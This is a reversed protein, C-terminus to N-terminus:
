DKYGDSISYECHNNMLYREVEDPGDTCTVAKVRKAKSLLRSLGSEGKRKKGSPQAPQPATKSAFPKFVTSSVPSDLIILDNEDVFPDPSTYSLQSSSQSSAQSSTNLSTSSSITTRQLKATLDDRACYETFSDV